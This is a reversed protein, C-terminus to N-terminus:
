NRVVTLQQDPSWKERVEGDLFQLVGVRWRYEGPPLDTLALKPVRLGPEDIMPETLSARFLQFHYQLRGGGTADFRFLYQDFGGAKSEEASTRLSLLRRRFSYTKTFGELRNEGISSIRVFWIGDSVGPMSLVSTGRAEDDIALFGADRSIEARHVVAGPAPLIAFSLDDQDQILDPQALNPAPLLRAPPGKDGPASILGYGAGLSEVTEGAADGVEVRGELVETSSRMSAANYTVRLQTGRVASVTNPTRFRLVDNPSTMPTISGRVQGNLMRFEREVTNTLSQTRLREILMQSQSPLTIVSNDPFGLSLSANAPTTLIDGEAVTMGVFVRRSRGLQRVSANGRFALIKAEVAEYRLLSKPIRLVSRVQMKAPDAIRNLRRVVVHDATRRFHREALEILTDGKQVRYRVVNEPEKGAVAGQGAFCFALVVLLFGVPTLGKPRMRTQFHSRYIRFNGTALPLVLAAPSAHQSEKVITKFMFHHM